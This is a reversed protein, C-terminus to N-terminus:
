IFAYPAAGDPFVLTTGDVFFAGLRKETPTALGYVPATNEMIQGYRGNYNFSQTTIEVEHGSKKQTKRVVQLLEKVLNGTADTSIRSDLEIVDTLAINDDAYDLLITYMRPPTNLRKLLRLSLVRVIADAGNNLWRCFVEKVTTENYSNAGEADTDILVNIQDYNSKSKYDQTPNSQKSYFHVQTIRDEDKDEQDIKKINNRDSIPFILDADVPHTSMLGIEQLVDDWWISLGLDALEGILQGVGTPKTIITDIKLNNLWKNIEPQWKTVLPIYSAPIKAFNVLFDYIVDDVRQDVINKAVQVTDGVSHTSGVTGYLARATVTFADAVRTFSVVESGITAWGSAPYEADGIGAPTLNVTPTGTALMDADIKGRSAVPCLAKKDDALSLIDKGNFTFSGDSDPGDVTTIIFSRTKDVTLTGDEEIFADVVRLQRGSYFPWRAKLKTFHTGKDKPNYGIGSFQAAGSVRELQYKDFWIDDDVFDKLNVTVTARRGFAGLSPNAGSINVSSTFATIGNEKLVPHANFGKPLNSRNNCYRITKVVRDFNPKDQCTNYTNFCKFPQLSGLAATCPATGYVRSCYDVDVEIYQFPERSAM